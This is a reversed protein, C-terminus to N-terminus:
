TNPLSFFNLHNTSDMLRIPCQMLKVSVSNWCYFKKYHTSSAHCALLNLKKRILKKLYCVNHMKDYNNITIEKHDTASLWGIVGKVKRDTPNNIQSEKSRSLNSCDESRKM